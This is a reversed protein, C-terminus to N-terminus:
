WCTELNVCISEKLLYIQNLVEFKNSLCYRFQGWLAREVSWDETQGRSHNSSEKAWKLRGRKTDLSGIFCHGLFMEQTTSITWFMNYCETVKNRKFTSHWGQSSTKAPRLIWSIQILWHASMRTSLPEGSKLCFKDGWWGFFSLQFLRAQFLSQLCWIKKM